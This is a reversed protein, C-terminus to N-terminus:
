RMTGVTLLNKEAEKVIADIQTEVDKDLPQPHHVKLIEEVKEKARDVVERAGGRKWTDWYLRDGLEPYWFEKRAYRATHKSMLFNGQVGIERITELALTDKNVEIGRLLRRIMDVMENDIVTQEYSYMLTHDLYGINGIETAGALIPMLGTMLKEYGAQFSPLKADTKFGSTGVPINYFETLLQIKGVYLLTREPGAYVYAGAKMDYTTPDPGMGAGVQVRAESDIFKAITIGTWIEANALALDGALTCPGTLGTIPMSGFGIPLGEKVYKLILDVTRESYLLPSNVEVYTTLVPKKRLEEKGGAFVEAIRIIYEAEKPNWVETGGPKTTNKLLDAAAHVTRVEPRLTQDSVVPSVVSINNMADALRISNVVDNANAIRREKKGLDLIFANCGDMCVIQPNRIRGGYTTFIIEKGGIPVNHEKGHLEWTEGHTKKMVEETIERPIKVVKDRYSVDAGSNDLLKLADLHDIKIGPEELIDLSTNHIQYLEEETFVRINNYLQTM